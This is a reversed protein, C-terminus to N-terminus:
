HAIAPRRRIGWGALALGGIALLILSAPEPVPAITVDVDNSHAADTGFTYSFGPQPDLVSLGSIGTTGGLSGAYGLLDYTGPTDFPTVGDTQLLNFGGGNIVLGGSATANFFDNAPASSFEFDLISSPALTLNSGTLTGVTGVGNGPDIHSGALATLAGSITGEGMLTQGSALGFGGSGTVGTLSLTAGSAVNVTTSDPINNNGTTSLALTGAQVLVSGSFVNNGSLTVTGAAATNVILGGSGQIASSISIGISKTGGAGALTLTNSGLNVPNTSIVLPDFNAEILANANLTIGGSLTDTDSNASGGTNMSNIAGFTTFGNIGALANGVGSIAIPNAYTTNTFSTSDNPCFTGGSQVTVTGSGAGTAYIDRVQARIARHRRRHVHQQGHAPHRRRRIDM